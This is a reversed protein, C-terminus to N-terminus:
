AADPTPAPPQLLAFVAQDDPTGKELDAIRQQVGNVSNPAGQAVSRACSLLAARQQHETAPVLPERETLVGVLESRPKGKYASAELVQLLPGMPASELWGKVVEPLTNQRAADLKDFRPLLLQLLGVPPAPSVRARDWLGWLIRAFHDADFAPAEEIRTLLDNYSQSEANAAIL